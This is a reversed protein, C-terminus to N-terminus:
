DRASKIQEPYFAIFEENGNNVGDYGQAILWNRAKIGADNQGQFMRLAKYGVQEPAPNKISLYFSKVNDGYGASDEAWPSFFAGQIDMNARGKSMDFENFQVSSGHYVIKPSGDENVIKSKGFWRKFQQTDTQDAIFPKIPSGPDNINHAFGDAPLIGPLQLGATRLLSLSKEKNWYYLGFGKGSEEKKIADLLLKSLANDKAFVSKVVNSDITLGNQVGLGEVHVPVITQKGNRVWEILM